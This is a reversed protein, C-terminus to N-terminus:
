AEPLDALQPAFTDVFSPKLWKLAGFKSLFLHKLHPNAAM